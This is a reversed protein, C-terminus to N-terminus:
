LFHRGKREASLAGQARSSIGSESGQREMWAGEARSFSSGLICLGGRFEAVVILCERVPGRSLLKSQLLLDIPVGRNPPPLAIPEVENDFQFKTVHLM